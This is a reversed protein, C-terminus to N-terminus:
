REIDLDLILHGESRFRGVERTVIASAFLPGAFAYSHYEGREGCADVDAAAELDRLFELTFERGLWESRGGHDLYVSTVRARHGRAIFEAVLQAPRGGWLPEHHRFELGTTREEYWARVDALHINGFVIDRLGQERLQALLRLFTAEFDAAATGRQVLIKGLAVAQAGILEKKIGHFRVRATTQDFINVLHTVDMGARRARDLALLSDKGGSWFLAVSM